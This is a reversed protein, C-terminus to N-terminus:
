AYRRAIFIRAIGYAMCLLPFMWLMAPTAGIAILKAGQLFGASMYLTSVAGAALGVSELEIRRQMEDSDRVYRAIARIALFVLLAPLLAVLVRLWPQEISGLLPKWALMVVVYAAMPPGFERYYRRTLAPTAVDRFSGPTFWLMAAALVGGFSLGLGFDVLRHPVPWGLWHTGAALIWLGVCAAFVLLARRRCRGLPAPGHGAATAPASGAPSDSRIPM